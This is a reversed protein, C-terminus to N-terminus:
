TRSRCYTHFPPINLRSSFSYMLDQRGDHGRAAAATHIFPPSMSAYYVLLCYFAYHLCAKMGVHPKLLIYLFLPIHLRSSFSYSMLVHQVPLGEHGRAAAVTNLLPTIPFCHLMVFIQKPLCEHGRAAAVTKLLPTIPVSLLM